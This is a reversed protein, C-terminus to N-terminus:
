QSFICGDDFRSRDFACTQGPQPIRGDIAAGDSVAGGDGRITVNLDEGIVLGCSAVGWATSTALAVAIAFRRAM